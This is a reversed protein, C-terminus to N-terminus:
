LKGRKALFKKQPKQAAQQLAHFRAAAAYQHGLPMSYGSTWRQGGLKYTIQHREILIVLTHKGAKGPIEVDEFKRQTPRSLLSAM